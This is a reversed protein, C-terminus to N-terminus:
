YDPLGYGDCVVLLRDGCRVYEVADGHLLTADRRDDGDLKGVVLGCSSYGPFPSFGDGALGPM